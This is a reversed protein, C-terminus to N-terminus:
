KSDVLNIKVTTAKVGGLYPLWLFSKDDEKTIVGQKVGTITLFLVERGVYPLLEDYTYYKFNEM